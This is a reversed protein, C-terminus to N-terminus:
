FLDGHRYAAEIKSKVAHALAMECVENSFNTRESAWDRFSSRFGHATCDIGMRRLTMLFVMNSLPKGVDRGPFVLESDPALERVRRLVEVCCPTLPVRHERAAKMRDAPITWVAADLNIEPWRAGLVEGTRTVILILVEFALRVLEGSDGGRLCAVFAPVDAYPLATMHAARDYQKPLGRAVGDIPNEGRFDKEGAQVPLCLRNIGTARMSRRGSEAM